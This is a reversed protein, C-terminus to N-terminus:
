EVIWRSFRPTVERQRKFPSLREMMLPLGFLYKRSPTESVWM